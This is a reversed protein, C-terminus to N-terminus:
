RAGAAPVLPEWGPAVPRELKRYTLTAKRDLGQQILARAEDSLGFFNRALAADDAYARKIEVLSWASPFPRYRIPPERLWWETFGHRAHLTDYIPTGPYPVLVGRANFAAALPAAQEIFALTTRLEDLTEDPWGFMINLMCHLGLERSWALVDLVRAVTVGKGIRLLMRPDGSEMGIDVGCCGADQMRRLIDRDLHAPHATCTWQVRLGQLADCLEEMRRRGVAFSDDFFSFAAFGRRAQLEEIERRLGQASRYRFRRGTVNNSCFTCAAPCGRSALLGAPVLTEAPTGYWRADFLDLADLPSALADLDLLFGRVPTVQLGTSGKFVLSRVSDFARKGDLADCLEVLTEEGEGRVSFDFGHALPELPAVTPHPGGAVLPVRGAFAKALAYADQVYLTKVHLGVLDPEFSLARGVIEDLDRPAHPASADLLAVEHGARRLSAALYMFSLLPTRVTEDTPPNILFVRAM